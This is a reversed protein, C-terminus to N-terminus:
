TKTKKSVFPVINMPEIFNDTLTIDHLRSSNDDPDTIDPLLDPIRHTNRNVCSVQSKFDVWVYFYEEQDTEPDFFRSIGVGSLPYLLFNDLNKKRMRRVALDIKEKEFEKEEEILFSIKKHEISLLYYQDLLDDRNKCDKDLKKKLDKRDLWKQIVSVELILDPSYKYYTYMDQFELMGKSIPIRAKRLSKRYKLLIDKYMDEESTSVTLISNKINEEDVETKEISSGFVKKPGTKKETKRNPVISENSTRSSMEGEDEETYQFLKEKSVLPPLIHKFEKDRPYFCNESMSYELNFRSILTPKGLSTPSTIETLIRTVSVPIPSIGFDKLIENLSIGKNITSSSSLSNLYKLCFISEESIDASLLASEMPQTYKVQNSVLYLLSTDLSLTVEIKKQTTIISEFLPFSFSNKGTVNSIFFSAKNLTPIYDPLRSIGPFSSVVREIDKISSVSVIRGVESSRIININKFLFEFFVVDEKSLTVTSFFSGGNFFTVPNLSNYLPLSYLFSPINKEYNMKKNSFFTLWNALSEKKKKIGVSLLLSTIKEVNM